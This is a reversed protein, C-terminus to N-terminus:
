RVREIAMVRPGKHTQVTVEDGLYAGLLAHGLPAQPTVTTITEGDISFRLGGAAPVLFYHSAAGGDLAQLTVLASLAVPQDDAFARVKLVALAAVDNQLTAVRESLGRALYSAELARTDKDNEPRAEEHTAGRQTERQATLARALEEAVGVRLRELLAQKDVMAAAM